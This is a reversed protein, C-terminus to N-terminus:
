DLDKLMHELKNGKLITILEMMMHRNFSHKKLLEDAPHQLIEEITSFGHQKCLILFENSTAILDIKRTLISQITEM